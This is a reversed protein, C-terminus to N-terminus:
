EWLWLAVAGTMLAFVVLALAYISWKAFKALVWLWGALSIAVCALVLERPYARLPQLWSDLLSMARVCVVRAGRALCNGAQGAERAGRVM